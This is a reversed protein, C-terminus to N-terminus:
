KAATGEINEEVECVHFILGVTAVWKWPFVLNKKGRIRCFAQKKFSKKQGHM